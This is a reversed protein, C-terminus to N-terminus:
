LPTSPTGELAAPQGAAPPHPDHGSPQPQPWCGRDALILLAAEEPRHGLGVPGQRWGQWEGSRRRRHQEGGLGGPCHLQRFLSLSPALTQNIAPDQGSQELSYHM